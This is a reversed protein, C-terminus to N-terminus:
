SDALPPLRKILLWYRSVSTKSSLSAASAKRSSHCLSTSISSPEACYKSSLPSNSPSKTPSKSKNYEKHSNLEENFYKKHFKIVAKGFAKTTMNEIDNYYKMNVINDIIEQIAYELIPHKPEFIMAWQCFNEAWGKREVSLIAKDEKTTHIIM